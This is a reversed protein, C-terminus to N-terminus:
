HLNYKLLQEALNQVEAKVYEFDRYTYKLHFDVFRGKMFVPMEGMVFMPSLDGAHACDFGFWWTDEDDRMTQSFNIGGHASFLMNVPVTGEEHDGFAEHLMGFIDPTDHVPVDLVEKVDGVELRDNMGRGFLINRKEVGVYGCLAMSHNRKIRCKFNLYQWDWDKRKDEAKITKILAKIKVVTSHVCETPIAYKEIEPVKTM